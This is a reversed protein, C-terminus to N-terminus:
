GPWYIRVVGDDAQRTQLYIQGFAPKKLTNGGPTSTYGCTSDRPCLRNPGAQSRIFKLSGYAKPSKKRGTSASVAEFRVRYAKISLELSPVFAVQRAHSIPWHCRILRAEARQLMVLLAAYLRYVVVRPMVGERIHVLHRAFGPRVLLDRHRPIELVHEFRDAGLACRCPVRRRM